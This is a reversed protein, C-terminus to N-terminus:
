KDVHAELSVLRNTFPETKDIWGSAPLVCPQLRTAGLIEFSAGALTPESHAPFHGTLRIRQGQAFPLTEPGPRFYVGNSEDQLWLLGWEPDYYTVDAEIRYDVGRSRVALPLDWYAQFSTVPTVASPIAPASDDAGAATALHLGLFLAGLLSARLIGSRRLFRHRAPQM